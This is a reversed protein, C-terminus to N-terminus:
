PKLVKAAKYELWEVKMLLGHNLRKWVKKQKEKKDNNGLHPM